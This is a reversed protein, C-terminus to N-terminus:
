QHMDAVSFFFRLQVYFNPHTVDCKQSFERMEISNRLSSGSGKGLSTSHLYKGHPILKKIKTM